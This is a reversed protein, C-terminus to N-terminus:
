LGAAETLHNAPARLRMISVGSSSLPPPHTGTQDFETRYWNRMRTLGNKLESERIRWKSGLKIRPIQKGRFLRHVTRKSVQLIEAKKGVTLFQFKKYNSAM